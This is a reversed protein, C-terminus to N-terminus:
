FANEIIIYSIYAIEDEPFQISYQQEL